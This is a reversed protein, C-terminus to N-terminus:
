RRWRGVEQNRTVGMSLNRACFAIAGARRQGAKAQAIGVAGVRILGAAHGIQLRSWCSHQLAKAPAVVELSGIVTAVPFMALEYGGGGRWM